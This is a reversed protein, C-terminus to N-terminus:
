RKSGARLSEGIGNMRRDDLDQLEGSVFSKMSEDSQVSLFEDM